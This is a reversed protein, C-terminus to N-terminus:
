REDGADEARLAVGTFTQNVHMANWQEGYTAFGVVNNAAHISAVSSTIGSREAELFRQICDCGIVVTPPGGLTASVGAFATALNDVMDVGRAVRLVIGEDIACFFTLSEDANVKQISRVFVRGGVTVAVPYRAFAVPTLEEPRLGAVRAYERAAPEGNIEMVTRRVVDAATVVMRAESPVFGETKFVSFPVGPSVLTLLACDTRFAGDHFLWTQGFRVGDAASGGFLPIAGLGGNIAAVLMEEKASMGDVLLFAFTDVAEPARCRATWLEAFAASAVQEGRRLEFSALGDIRATVAAFGPGGLSVGTLSGEVYGRPSIEGATTCGIVRADGFHRRLAAALADRDYSPSCFLVTLAAEPDFIAAHLERVAVEPDVAHSAGRRVRLQARAERM